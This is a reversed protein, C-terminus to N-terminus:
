ISCGEATCYKEDIGDGRFSSWDIPKIASLRRNYEHPTIQEEPMQEYHTQDDEVLPMMSISKTVPVISSLVREVDSEEHRKFYLTNSVSNDAWERQLLVLNMAQEWISVDSM